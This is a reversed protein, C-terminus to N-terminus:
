ACRRGNLARWQHLLVVNRKKLGNVLTLSRSLLAAKRGGKREEEFGM